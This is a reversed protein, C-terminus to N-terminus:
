IPIYGVFLQSASTPILYILTAEISPDILHVHRKALEVKPTGPVLHNHWTGVHRNRDSLSFYERNVTGIRGPGLLATQAIM